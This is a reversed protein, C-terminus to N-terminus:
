FETQRDNTMQEESIGTNCQVEIKKEEPATVM